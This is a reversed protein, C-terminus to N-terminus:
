RVDGTGSKAKTPTVKNDERGVRLLGAVAEEFKLPKLSIPKEAPKLSESEGSEAGVLRKPRKSASGRKHRHPSLEGQNSM